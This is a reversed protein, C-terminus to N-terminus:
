ALLRRLRTFEKNTFITLTTVHDVDLTVEGHHAHEQKHVHSVKCYDVPVMRMGSAKSHHAALTAADRKTERSMSTAEVIVHAGPCDAVHFWYYDPDATQTLQDNEKATQGVLIRTGDESEKVIMSSLM